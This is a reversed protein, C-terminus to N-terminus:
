EIIRKVIRMDPIRNTVRITFYDYLGFKCHITMDDPRRKWTDISTVKVTSLYDNWALVEIHQGHKIQLLEDFSLEKVEIMTPNKKRDNRAIVNM